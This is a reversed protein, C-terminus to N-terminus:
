LLPVRRFAELTFTRREGAVTWFVELEIRDLGQARPGMAPPREFPSVMARWGGEHGGLLVPEFEGQIVQLRPLRRDVLLADMKARAVLAVREHDTLRSANRLSGSIGSLMGVVAVGMITSAVLIELLTFGRQRARRM